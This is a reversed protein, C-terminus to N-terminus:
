ASHKNFPVQYGPHLQRTARIRAGDACDPAFHDVVTFAHENPSFVLDFAMLVRHAPLLAALQLDSEADAFRKFDDTIGDIRQVGEADEESRM